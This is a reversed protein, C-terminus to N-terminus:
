NITEDKEILVNELEVLKPETSTNNQKGISEETDMNTNRKEACNDDSVVTKVNQNHMYKCGEERKCGGVEGKWYKCERPHRYVCTNGIVCRGDKPIVWM